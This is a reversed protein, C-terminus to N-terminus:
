NSEAWRASEFSASRMYAFVPGLLLLVLACCFWNTRPVDSTLTVKYSRQQPVLNAPFAATTRLVYTGPAVRSLYETGDRSGETWSGDSDKGSYFSLEQYFSRVEGTEQNVLDGQIGLWNNNVASVVEARVNGRRHITFPESFHMASPQGSVADGDLQVTTDLVRTNAAQLNLVV